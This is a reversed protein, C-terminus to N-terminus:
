GEKQCMSIVDEGYRSLFANNRVFADYPILRRGLLTLMWPIPLFLHRRTAVPRLGNQLSMSMISALSMETYKLPSYGLRERFLRYAWQLPRKCRRLFQDKDTLQCICRGNTGLCSAIKAIAENTSDLHALVGILLVVDYPAAPEFQLVDSVVYDVQAAHQVPTNRKALELMRASADVLTVHNGASLFQLSIRGDGCGLDLIRCNRIDGVMEKVVQARLDIIYNWKTLYSDPNAFFRRRRETRSETVAM